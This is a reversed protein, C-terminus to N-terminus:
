QDPGKSWSADVEAAGATGGSKARIRGGIQNALEILAALGLAAISKSAIRYSPDGGGPEKGPRLLDVEITATAPLAIVNISLRGIVDPMSRKDNDVNLYLVEPAYTGAGAPVTFAQNAIM